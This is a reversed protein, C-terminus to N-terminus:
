PRRRPSPRGISVKRVPHQDVPSGQISFDIVHCPRNQTPSRALGRHAHASYFTVAPPPPHFDLILNSVWLCHQRPQVSLNSPNYHPGRTEKLYQKILGGTNHPHTPPRTTARESPHTSRAPMRQTHTHPPHPLPSLPPRHLSSSTSKGEVM